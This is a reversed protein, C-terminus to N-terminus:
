VNKEYDFIRSGIGFNYLSFFFVTLNVYTHYTIEKQRRIKKINGLLPVAELM